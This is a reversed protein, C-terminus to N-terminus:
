TRVVWAPPVSRVASRSMKDFCLPCRASSEGKLHRLICVLCFPGHGCKTVRPVIPPELCIPCRWEDDDADGEMDEHGDVGDVRFSDADSIGSRRAASPDPQKAVDAHKMRGDDVLRSGTDTADATQGRGSARDTASEQPSTSRRKASGWATDDVDSSAKKGVSKYTVWLANDAHIDPQTAPSVAASNSADRESQDKKPTEDQLNLPRPM